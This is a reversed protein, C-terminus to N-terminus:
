RLLCEAESYEEESSVDSGEYTDSSPRYCREDSAVSHASLYTDESGAATGSVTYRSLATGCAGAEDVIYEGQYGWRANEHADM